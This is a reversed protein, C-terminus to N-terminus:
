YLDEIEGTDIHVWYQKLLTGGFLEKASHEEGKVYELISIEMTESDIMTLRATTKTAFNIVAHTEDDSSFLTKYYDIAYNTVVKETSAKSLRWKGTEDDRVSDSFTTNIGDVEYTGSKIVDPLSEAESSQNEVIAIPAETTEPAATSTTEVRAQSTVETSSTGSQGCAICLISTAVVATIIIFAQRKEM